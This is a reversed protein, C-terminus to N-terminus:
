LCSPGVLEAGMYTLKSWGVQGVAIHLDARGLINGVTNQKLFYMSSSIHHSCLIFCAASNLMYEQLSPLRKLEVLGPLTLDKVDGSKIKM